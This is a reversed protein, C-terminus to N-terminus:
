PANASAPGPEIPAKPAARLWGPPVGMRRAEANFEVLRQEADELAERAADLEALVKAKREGRMRRRHRMQQYEASAARYRHRANEVDQVVALHRSQWNRQEIQEREDNRSPGAAAAFSLAATLAMALGTARIETM